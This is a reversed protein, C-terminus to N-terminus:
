AHALRRRRIAAVARAHLLFSAPIFTLALLTAGIVGGGITVAVPPWFTGGSLALPVFGVVTTVTTALVHRTNAFVVRTVAAADGSRADDDARLGALVVISDNIAVGILGMAGVIAMFGFPYDAIVLALLALGVALGAIIGIIGALVFSRFSLVLTAVMLVVLVSVSSALNAVADDREAAEGGFALHYGPPLDPPDRELDESLAALASGPLLGAELFGQVTNARVGRHHPLNAPETRLDFGGFASLPSWSGSSPVRDTPSSAHPLALTRMSALNARTGDAEQIRVPLDETEELFSGGRAGELQANLRQALAVNDLGALRLEDDDVDVFLKPLGTQLTTRTHLVGAVAAVRTRLEDGLRSLTAVDPGTLRLEIPAEFPPGQELQRVLVRAQPLEADLANALTRMVASAGEASELQVLAQAYFSTGREAPIMNYYFKPGSAGVFWHADVVAEHALLVERAQRAAELTAELSAQRPLELEIQFQDRDAAPFFQEVLGGSRAFGLVPLTAALVIAVLPHRFLFGLVKRYTRAVWPLSLGHSLQGREASRATLWGTVVPVITMALLFSSILALIVSLSMTGVFEGAPGPMLLIPLFALVTTLTSGLLPVFLKGVAASVAKTLAGGEQSRHELLGLKVEDVVVIANDILLGLAIILGAVSMQHLPVGLLRMGFLVMLSSLPLATGVVVASRWGMLVALVLVVFLGGLLLNALLNALRTETYTSQDFLERLEVGRPLEREFEALVERARAAWQDVRVATTTRAALAVGPHGALLAVERPPDLVGKVIRAVDGLRLITAGEGVRLPLRELRELTEFAGDVEIQLDNAAGRLSGASVKADAGRLARAVDAADLGLSALRDTDILVRIEEDPAGFLDVDETGPILRLRDELDETLRRLLAANPAGELEWSLGGIWTYARIDIEEFDPSLAGAPLELAADAIADRVKPWVADVDYIHDSLEVSITSIGPQSESTLLQIEELTALEDELPKTVLAEVREADAGPFATFVIANRATLEPDEMRPLVALSSLGAVIVVAITLATLHPERLFLTSLSPKM